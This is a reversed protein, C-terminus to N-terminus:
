AGLLGQIEGDVLDMEFAQPRAPLGPMRMIEGLLPVIMGAGAAVIVNRVVVKFNTPRGSITPDDSLSTPAKAMSIPLGAYGLEVVRKLDKRAQKTYIVGDAGYMQRAIIEIKEEPPQSWDYLPKFPSHGHEAHEMLVRALDRGGEGGRAFIESVAFPVSLEECRRHVVDIEEETDTGFRNLAVVPVETFIHISEVHKELNGLGREVAAPDPRDLDAKKVGGHRKLARVTAM